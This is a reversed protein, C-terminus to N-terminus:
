DFVGIGTYQQLIDWESDDSVALTFTDGSKARFAMTMREKKGAIYLPIALILGILTIALLTILVMRAATLENEPATVKANEIDNPLTFKNDGVRIIDKGGFFSKALSAKKAGSSSAILDM